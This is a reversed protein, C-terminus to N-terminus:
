KQTILFEDDQYLKSFTAGRQFQYKGNYPNECFSTMKMYILQCIRIGVNLRISRHSQNQLELTIQGKFGSDIFGANQVQIGIRGISSRGAVLAAFDNPIEIFEETSALIFDNPHMVISDSDWSVFEPEESIDLVEGNNGLSLRCFSSSLTLDVSSPGINSEMPFCGKHQLRLLDNDSCVM